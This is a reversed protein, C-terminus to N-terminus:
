EAAAGATFMQTFDDFVDELSNLEFSAYPSRHPHQTTYSAVGLSDFFTLANVTVDTCGGFGVIVLPGPQPQPFPRYSAELRYLGSLVAEIDFQPPHYLWFPVCLAVIAFATGFIYYRNSYRSPM